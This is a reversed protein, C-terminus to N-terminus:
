VGLSVLRVAGWAGVSGDVMALVGLVGAVQRASALAADIDSASRIRNAVATAVADALAGESALVTVADAAGFSTSHGLTGSSTAIGCPLAGPEIEIGMRAPEATRAVLAVTRRVTGLMFIDGGNEVIVEASHASLGRAVHEAVAGAVSAMPGVGAVSGAYAMRAVIGPVDPEVPHPAFTEAFRPHAAVYTEILGRAERVLGMAEGSLDRLACIQLDTEGLAVEFCVLGAPEVTRRYTRPEYVM